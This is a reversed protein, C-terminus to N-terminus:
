GKCAVLGASHKGKRWASCSPRPESEPFGQPSWCRGASARGIAPPTCWTLGEERVFGRQLTRVTEYCAPPCRTNLRSYQLSTPDFWELPFTDYVTNHNQLTKVQFCVCVTVLSHEIRAYSLWRTNKERWAEPSGVFFPLSRGWGWAVSSPEKHQNSSWGGRQLSHAWEARTNKCM